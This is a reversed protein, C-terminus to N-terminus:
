RWGRRGSRRQLFSLLPLELPEDTSCPIFDIGLRACLGRIQTQHAEFARLYDARALRPDVFRREETELDRLRAAEPLDLSREAPDLIQFVAVEHGAARLGSLPAECSQVDVLLDSLLVVMARRRMSEAVRELAWGAQSDRGGPPRDLLAILRRLHGPRNRAPLHDSINQAFTTLGVADGQGALFTALTGALVAQYSWKDALPYLGSKFAMSASEDVLLQCRLNTEDEYKKVYHRDSRAYLRWDLWRIDDGPSYSRYETFEVSFGHFPSRHLGRWVGEVVARIRLELSALKMLAAPDIFAPRVASAAPADSESPSPSPEPAV